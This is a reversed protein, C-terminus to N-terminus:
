IWRMQYVMWVLIHNTLCLSQTVKVDGKELELIRYHLFIIFM